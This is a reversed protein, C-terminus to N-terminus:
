HSHLSFCHIDAANGMPFYFSKMAELSLKANGRLKLCLTIMHGIIRITLIVWSFDFCKCGQAQYFAQWKPM